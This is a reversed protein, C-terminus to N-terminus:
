MAAQVADPRPRLQRILDAVHYRTVTGTNKWRVVQDKIRHLWQWPRGFTLAEVRDFIERDHHYAALLRVMVSRSHEVGLDRIIRRAFTAVENAIATGVDSLRTSHEFDIFCFGDANLIVNDTNPDTHVLLLDNQVRAQLHRRYNVAFLDALTALRRDLEIATDRLFHKLTDGPVFEMVLYPEREGPVPMEALQPVRFGAARWRTLKAAELDRRAKKDANLFVKVLLKRDATEHLSLRSDTFRDPTIPTLNM